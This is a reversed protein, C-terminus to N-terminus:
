GLVLVDVALLIFYKAAAHAKDLWAKDNAFRQM